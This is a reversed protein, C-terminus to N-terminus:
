LRSLSQRIEATHEQLHTRHSRIIIEITRYEGMDLVYPDEPGTRNM